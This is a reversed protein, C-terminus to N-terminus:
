TFFAGGASFLFYFLNSYFTHSLCLFRQHITSYLACSIYKFAYWKCDMGEIRLLMENIDRITVYYMLPIYM